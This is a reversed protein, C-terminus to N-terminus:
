LLITLFPKGDQADCLWARGPLVHRSSYIPIDRFAGEFRPRAVARVADIYEVLEALSRPNCKIARLKPASEIQAFLQEIGAPTIASKTM